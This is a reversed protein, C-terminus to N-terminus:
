PWYENARFAELCKDVHTIVVISIVVLGLIPIEIENSDHSLIMHLNKM